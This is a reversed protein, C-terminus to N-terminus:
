GQLLAAVNRLTEPPISHFVNWGPIRADPVPGRNGVCQNIPIGHEPRGGQIGFYDVAHDFRDEIVRCFHSASMWKGREPCQIVSGDGQGHWVM